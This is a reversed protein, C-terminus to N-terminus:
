KLFRIQAAITACIKRERDTPNGFPPVACQKEAIVALQEIFADLRNYVDNYQEDTACGRIPRLFNKLLGSM